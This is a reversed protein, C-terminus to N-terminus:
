LPHRSGQVPPWTTLEFITFRPARVVCALPTKRGYLVGVPRIRRQFASSRRAAARREGGDARGKTEGLSPESKLQEESSDPIAGSSAFSRGDGRQGGSDIAKVVRKMQSDPRYFHGIISIRHINHLMGATIATSPLSISDNAASAADERRSRTLLCFTWPHEDALKM